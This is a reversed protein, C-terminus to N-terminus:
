RREIDRRSLVTREASTPHCRRSRYATEVLRHWAGYLRRFSEIVARSTEQDRVRENRRDSNAGQITRNLAMLNRRVPNNSAFPGHRCDVRANRSSISRRM